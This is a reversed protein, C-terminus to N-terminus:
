GEQKLPMRGFFFIFSLGFGEFGVSRCPGEGKGDWREIGNADYQYTCQPEIEDWLAKLRRAFNSQERVLRARQAEAAM